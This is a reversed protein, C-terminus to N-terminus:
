NSFNKCDFGILVALMSIAPKCFKPLFNRYILWPTGWSVLVLDLSLTLIMINCNALGHLHTQFPLYCPSTSSEPPPRELLQMWDELLAASTGQITCPVVRIAILHTCDENLMDSGYLYGCLTEIPHSVLSIAPRPCIHCLFMFNM